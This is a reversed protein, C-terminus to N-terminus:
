ASFVYGCRLPGGCCIVCASGICIWVCGGGWGGRIRAAVNAIFSDIPEPVPKKADDIGLKEKAAAFAAQLEKDLKRGSKCEEVKLSTAMGKRVQLTVRLSCCDASFTGIELSHSGQKLRDVDVFNLSSAPEFDAIRTKVTISHQFSIEQNAKSAM